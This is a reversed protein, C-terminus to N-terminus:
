PLEDLIICEKTSKVKRVCFCYFLTTNILLFVALLTWLITLESHTFRFNIVYADSDYNNMLDDMFDSEDETMSCCYKALPCTEEDYDSSSAICLKDISMDECDYDSCNFESKRENQAAFSISSATQGLAIHILSSCTIWSFLIIHLSSM